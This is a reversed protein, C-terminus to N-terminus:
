QIKGLFGSEKMILNHFWVKDPGLYGQGHMKEHIFFGIDKEAGGM